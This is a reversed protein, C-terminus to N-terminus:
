VRFGLGLVLPIPHVSILVPRPVQSARLSTSPTKSRCSLSNQIKPAKAVARFELPQCQCRALLRGVAVRFDWVQARAPTM